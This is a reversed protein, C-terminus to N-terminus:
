PKHPLFPFSILPCIFNLDGFRNLFYEMKIIIAPSITNKERISCRKIEAAFIVLMIRWDATIIITALPAVKTIIAPSMSIEMPPTAHIVDTIAPNSITFPKGMATATSTATKKPPTHPIMEPANIALNSKGDMTAVSAMIFRVVPIALRSVSPVAIELRGADKWTM